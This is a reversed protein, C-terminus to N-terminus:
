RIPIPDTDAICLALENELLVRGRGKLACFGCGVARRAGGM